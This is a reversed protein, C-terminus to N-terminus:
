QSIIYNAYMSWGSAAKYAEVSGSPVKILLDPSTMGFAGQGLSPPVTPYMIVEILDDCNYCLNVGISTVSSPITLSILDSETFVNDGINTVGSPLELVIFGSNRFAENGISTVGSPITVSTLGSCGYFLGRPISTLSSNLIVSSLSTCDELVYGGFSTVYSLDISSLGSCQYFAFNDIMTVGSPLSISTLRSQRSFRDRGIKTVPGSFTIIGRGDTYTNSVISAGWYSSEGTVNIVQGDSSTYYIMNNPVGREWVLETGQYARVFDDENRYILKDATWM